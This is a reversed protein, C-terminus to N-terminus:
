IKLKTSTLFCVLINIKFIPNRKNKDNRNETDSHGQVTSEPVNAQWGPITLSNGSSTKLTNM